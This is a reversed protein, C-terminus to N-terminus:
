LAKLKAFVADWALGTSRFERGFKPWRGTGGFFCSTSDWPRLAEESYELGLRACLERVTHEPDAALATLDFPVMLRGEGLVLLKEWESALQEVVNNLNKGRRVYSYLMTAPPKIPFVLVDPCGFRGWQFTNKDSVVLVNPSVIRKLNAYLNNAGGARLKSLVEPTFVPCEDLHRFCKGRKPKDRARDLIWHTEGLGTVGPLEGLICNTLTSGCFSPGAVGIIM